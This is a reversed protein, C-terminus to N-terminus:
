GRPGEKMEVELPPPEICDNSTWRPDKPDFGPPLGPGCISHGQQEDEALALNLELLFELPDQGSPLDYAMAVAADLRAQTEKLPHPGSVDAAQHLARLSWGNAEMLERRTARLARAAECVALVVQEPPQQPWPFTRWVEGTYRATDGVKSGKAVAWAWHLGSQLVGFSYDDSHLFVQLSETPLFQRSLFIFIARAAHRSAVIYRSVSATAAVFDERPRWPQWWREAWGDYTEGKSLVYPHVHKKIYAFATGGERAAMESSCVSMDVAYDPARGGLLDGAIATPRVFPKARPDRLLEAAQSRNTQLAKTGLVIGQSTGARNAILEEAGAVDTHLQLHPAIRHTQYVVGDVLLSFPGTAAGKVWNVMSVKVTAEGPWDLSSVANTIVGGSKVIYTTAADRTNGERITNTAVLGARGGPRLHDHALRFWFACFDARGNVGPFAEQLRALYEPGLESRVKLGGLFPPNGIIANVPPWDTFLADAWVINGELNDLPLSPDLEMQVQGFRETAVQHREDFAIKKAINLTARALEVAFPNIDIGYFNTTAIGSGWAGRTSADEGVSPFEQMRALVETELRYLERFAVYLFNGSGCAPDLVRYQTLEKRLMKLETLTNAAAIRKRWPEVLTPGVVRMIDEKATYHAGTAHREDEDMIGQFVAGFIHPDVYTWDAESAKTLAALQAPSVPLTVPTKFLGGNFYRIERAGDGPTSMQHFLEALRKSADGKEAAQYLLSTFYQRPLLGIDEAFMAIICQLTFRIVDDVRRPHELKFSRYVRAVLEAVEKSVREVNIILPTAGPSWDQALFPFAESYKPLQDLAVRLRPESRSRALDYLELDRQNTLVIYQPVPVLQLLVPLLENWADRLNGERDIVQVVARRERLLASLRQDSGKGQQVVRVTAPIEAPLTDNPGWGFCRILDGAFRLDADRDRFGGAAGLAFRQLRVKTSPAWGTPTADSGGEDNAKARRRGRKPALEVPQPEPIARYGSGADPEAGGEVGLIRDILVQKERATGDLGHARCITKLEELKMAKLLQDLNTRRSSALADVVQPKPRAAAIEIGFRGALELLRAKTLEDLASRTPVTPM